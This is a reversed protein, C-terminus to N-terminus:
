RGARNVERWLEDDYEVALLGRASAERRLCRQLEGYLQEDIASLTVVGRAVGHRQRLHRLIGTDIGCHLAHLVRQATAANPLHCYSVMVKMAVDLVKAAQAFSPAGGDQTKIASIFWRCFEKHVTQYPASELQELASELRQCIQGGSQPAFVRAMATSAFAIEVINKRKASM